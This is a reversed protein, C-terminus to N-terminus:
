WKETASWRWFVWASFKAQCGGIKKKTALYISITRLVILFVSTKHIWKVLSVLISYRPSYGPITVIAKQPNRNSGLNIPIKSKQTEPVIALNFFGLPFSSSFIPFSWVYCHDPQFHQVCKLVSCIKQSFETYRKSDEM